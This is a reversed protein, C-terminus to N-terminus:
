APEKWSVDFSCSVGGRALCSREVVRPEDRPGQELMGQLWGGVSQCLGRHTIALEEISVSMGTALLLPRAVLKGGDYFKGWVGSALTVMTTPPMARTLLSRVIGADHTAAFRGAEWVLAGDGRGFLRDVLTTVEMLLEVPTWADGQSMLADRLAPTATSRLLQVAGIGFRESVFAERTRVMSARVNVGSFAIPIRSSSRTM